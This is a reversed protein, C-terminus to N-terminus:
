GALSVSTPLALLGSTRPPITRRHTRASQNVSTKRVQRSCSNDFCQSPTRTGEEGPYQGRTRGKADLVYLM